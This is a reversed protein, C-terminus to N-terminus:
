ELTRVFKLITKGRNTLNHLTNNGLPKKTVIGAMALKALHFSAMKYEIELKESIIEVSIGPNKDLAEILRLRNKNAFAKIVKEIPIQNNVKKDM